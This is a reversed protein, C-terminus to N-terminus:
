DFRGRTRGRSRDWPCNSAQPFGAGCVGLKARGNAPMLRV